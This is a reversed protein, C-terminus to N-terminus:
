GALRFYNHLGTTYIWGRRLMCVDDNGSVADEYRTRLMYRLYTPKVGRPIIQDTRGTERERGTERDCLSRADMQMLAPTFFTPVTKRIVSAWTASSFNRTRTLSRSADPLPPGRSIVTDHEQSLSFFFISKSQRPPPLDSGPMGAGDSTLRLIESHLVALLSPIPM